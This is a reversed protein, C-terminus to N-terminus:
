APPLAVFVSKIQTLERLVDEGNERGFGSQKTGGYPSAADFVNYCNLWVTGARLTAALRHAKGIDRTWVGAALGFETADAIRSAEELTEFRMVSLVPGFIEECAIKMPETVGGFVTPEVYYGAEDRAKGSLRKAGGEEGARIYDIVKARHEASVLPGMQTAADFPDGVQMAKAGDAVGAVVRDYVSAEVLLRSGATCLEGQNYFAARGAAAIAVDVDADAFIINPSKGGLEMTVKKLTTAAARMIRRGTDTGGTFSIKDVLPHEVLAAGAEEGLGTIVNVLGPPAGAELVLRALLITSLSAQEPPKIVVANGAALAPAIKRAALLLPFNWPIIAGIVGLPERLTYNLYPGRVPITEGHIKTAWGSFYFFTDATRPVDIMQSNTIPKGTDLTELRALEAAHEMVLEGIRWLIRQRDAHGVKAWAEFGKRASRVARDVDEAVGRPLTTLVKGTAPNMTDITARSAADVEKGDVWMKAPTVTKDTPTSTM